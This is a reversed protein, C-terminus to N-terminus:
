VSFPSLSSFNASKPFFYLLFKTTDFKTTIETRGSPGVSIGTACNHSYWAKKAFFNLYIRNKEFFEQTNWINTTIKDGCHSLPLLHSDQATASSYTKFLRFVAESLSLLRFVVTPTLLDRKVLLDSGLPPFATFCLCALLCDWQLGKRSEYIGERLLTPRFPSFSM